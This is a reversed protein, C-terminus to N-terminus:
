AAVMYVFVSQCSSSVPNASHEAYNLTVGYYYGDHDYACSVWSKGYPGFDSLYSSPVENSKVISCTLLGTSDTSCTPNYDGAGQIDTRSQLFLSTGLIGGRLNNCYIQGVSDLHCLVRDTSSSSLQHVTRELVNSTDQEVCYYGTGCLSRMSRSESQLMSRRRRTSCRSEVKTAAARRPHSM